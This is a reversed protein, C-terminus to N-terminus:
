KNGYCDKMKKSYESAIIDANNNGKWKWWESNLDYINETPEKKHSNMHNFVLNIKQKKLYEITNDIIIIFEKNKIENNDSGTWNKKKWLKIWETAIKFVYLSDLFINITIPINLINIHLNLDIIEKMTFELGKILAYLETKQNTPIGLIYPYALSKNIIEDNNNINKYILSVGVSGSSNEYGNNITSGDTYLYFNIGEEISM